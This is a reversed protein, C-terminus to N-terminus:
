RLESSYENTTVNSYISPEWPNGMLKLLNPASSFNKMFATFACFDDLSIVGLDDYLYVQETILCTLWISSPWSLWLFFLLIHDTFTDLMLLLLALCLSGISAHSTNWLISWIYLYILSCSLTSVVSSIRFIWALRFEFWVDNNDGIGGLIEIWCGFILISWFVTGLSMLYIWGLGDWTQLQSPIPKSGFPDHILTTQVYLKKVPFRM